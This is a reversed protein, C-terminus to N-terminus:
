PLCEPFDGSFEPFKTGRGANSGSVELIIILLTVLPARKEKKTKQM